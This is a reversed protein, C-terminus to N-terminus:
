KHKKYKKHKKKTRPPPSFGEECIRKWKVELLILDLSTVKLYITDGVCFRVHTKRGLFCNRSPEHIFYDGDIESVHLSGEIALPVLEFSIGFPKIKTIQCTYTRDPDEKYWEQLLRLKKLTKVSTEAKFSIREKSSCNEAISQVNKKPNHENFLLRQIILDPYRRIPSTFHCYEELSLGFHGINESSYNALKMSRIFAVSLQQAFPTEKAHDFLKQIDRTEPKGPLDFGLSRALTFFDERNELAPEEHIRFILPVNRAKLAKAVVENAKLMYEEVLQHTIDYEVIHYSNPIGNEGIKLVVEPLSFDISGREYRKMKLLRCLEVMLELTPKHKSRKKGDLVLKAEEYTFRRASKIFARHIEHELLDGNENFKMLVSATLRIVNPKLSCLNNSLEEPLMPLCAGPFYTSNSRREAEEDLPTGEKVYHSVDAIHVGLHYIGNSDKSLSLADDFDRATEPDITFSEMETLDLRDACDKPSVRSGFAKAQAIVKQSFEGAIQFEESAAKIDITADTISGLVQSVEAIVSKGQGGWDLIKLIVRDGHKLAPSAQSIVRIPKNQGLLPSHALIDGEEASRIIGGLHSRGRQIVTVIKGEPGKDKKSEPFLEVEVLDGDIANGTLHKAIFADEPFQKSDEAIVFGFGRPNMRFIGKFSNTNKPTILCNAKDIVVEGREILYDLAEKAEKKNKLPIKLKRFLATQSLPSYDKEYVLAVIADPLSQHNKKIM